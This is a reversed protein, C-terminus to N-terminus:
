SDEGGSPRESSDAAPDERGKNAARLAENRMARLEEALKQELKELVWEAEEQSGMLPSRSGVWSWQLHDPDEQESEDIDDHHNGESTPSGNGRTKKSNRSKRSHKKPMPKKHSMSNSEDEGILKLFWAWEEFSYKRPPHSKLHQTVDSIEDILMITLDNRDAPVSKPLDNGTRPMSLARKPFQTDMPSNKNSKRGRPSSSNKNTELRLSNVRSKRTSASPSEAPEQFSLHTSEDNQKASLPRANSPTRTSAETLQGDRGLSAPSKEADRNDGRMEPANLSREAALGHVARQLNSTSKLPQRAGQQAILKEENIEEDDIDRYLHNSSDGLFGPPQEEVESDDGFVTGMSIARAVLKLEKGIGGENPLVTITGLWDTWERILKVITDGANSILVTMTPLAMLSWFVFFSKGAPSVPTIDGYGITTLSVFAFYFGTFYSWEQYKIECQQFIAAGVLWLILWVITSVGMAMWRRSRESRAQIKRMLEFEKQRRELETLGGSTTRSRTDSINDKNYHEDTVPTLIDDKGRRIMRKLAHKRNKELMRASLQRRGRELVLSRISGVVLGLSIIGILAYPMLLARGLPTECYFDGFGVTFLTVDAWYVGDLYAWGEIRSFVLAGVLLYVLFMITQLMLTRQSTTLQFDKSYYGKTAGYLTVVMLTSCFFYLVAAYLGYYFAGSWIYDVEPQEILPGAATATLAILCLSSIYWAVITIPQAVTWRIKRAMNLLLIINAVLALALQIANIVILWIPDNIFTATDISTGPALFQRWPRVLACVSFASAVPGLTGAIMPFASSAFWYRSPDLHAEDNHVGRQKADGAEGDKEPANDDKSDFTDVHDEVHDGSDAMM